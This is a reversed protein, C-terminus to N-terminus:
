AANRRRGARKAKAPALTQAIERYVEANWAMGCHTGHVEANQAAHDTICMEWNVIGDTRSFIARHPLGDPVHDRTHCSFGCACHYTFCDRDVAKGKARASRNRQIRQRVLSAQRLIFPHVKPGRIPSGMTIVKGVLDPAMAAAGLSLVGGLSHGVLHVPKGTKRHAKRITRLLHQILVNPCDAHHGIRSMYPKYGMRWLWLYLETLYIDHGLFGPVLVVAAGDGRPVGLGYFVKSLRLQVWEVGLLSERWIPLSWDEVEDELHLTFSGAM